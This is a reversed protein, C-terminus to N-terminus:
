AISFAADTADGPFNALTFTISAVTPAKDSNDVDFSMATVIAKSLTFTVNDGTTTGASDTASGGTLVVATCEDGQELTAWTAIDSTEITISASKTSQYYTQVNKTCHKFGAFENDFSVSGGQICSFTTSPTTIALSNAAGITVIAM